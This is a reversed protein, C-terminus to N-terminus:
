FAVIRATFQIQRASGFHNTDPAFLPLGASFVPAGPTGYFSLADPGFNLNSAGTLNYIDLFLDLHHGEGRLTIDKVFRMDLNAFGPQRASNRGVVSGNLIARDNLDNADNQLDFGVIPTYPLGSRAVLVPNAKFGLPLNIIASLNFTHRVDFSSYAREASLNFPDLASLPGFPNVTSDDDHASALTYNAMVQTRRSLQLNATLLLGDYTSHANSENILLRGINPNPRAAGFIPLGDLESTPPSLNLDLMRQLDYTSNRLYTATLTTKGGIQQEISGSLQFSRPNRFDPAIGVVLAAPQLLAPPAAFAHLGGATTLPLLEPDFYSDATIVNLGNDSFVRHFITAPTPADYLGASVRVVTKPLPNWALGLRPQWQNLDNPVRTTQPIAPNPHGPQPNRQADWRLGASLALHRPLTVKGTVFLGATDVAGDYVADGTIFTQQFRRPTLSLYDALSDFDFRGNPNPEQEETAPEHFFNGGFRIVASGRTFAISDTLQLPSSTYLHFGLGDGGLIGFGNIFIEPATSNPTLRRVDTSWGLLFENVLTNSLVTTLNGRAWISHGEFANSYSNSADIRTSGISLNSFDLRNFNFALSLTNKSNLLVDTRGFLATPDNKGITQAQLTTLSGPLPTGPAQPQFETWYPIHLFDQEFGAYFFARDKRIPGGVSGGFENQQNDLSHGFADASSLTSPRGIFFGEGRLKNSGEKTVINVFGANTGGVEAGAGAQIVQFERVVTQPFFLSNDRSGRIGGHLPDDFSAGDIEVTAADPRQGAVVIGSEDGSQVGAALQTFQTFDRDRNPLYTVTLGAFFNGVHPEDKNTAPAVTQGEVTGPHGKVTVSESVGAIELRLALQVSSGVSVLVRNVKAPKFGPAEVQIAYTGPSLSAAAFEGDPGTTVVRQSAFDLNRITVTARPIARQDPDVVSGRITGSAAAQAVAARIPVVLCLVLLVLCRRKQTSM